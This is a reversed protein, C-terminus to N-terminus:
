RRIIERRNLRARAKSEAKDQSDRFNKVELNQLQGDASPRMQGIFQAVVNKFVRM